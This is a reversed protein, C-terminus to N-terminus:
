FATLCFHRTNGGPVKTKEGVVQSSQGMLALEQGGQANARIEGRDV